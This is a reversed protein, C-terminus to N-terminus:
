LRDAAHLSLVENAGDEILSARADRLLKEIPYEQSLGNGGFIQLADNAVEFATQTSTVKSAIAFHVAPFAGTGAGAMPNNMINYLTVRRNLSRAAEIKRFMEFLKLKVAQHQIIPVGGQVRQKAYDLAMEFAARACGVFTAGMYGNATCLTLEIGMPYMEAPIIMHTAPVRVADFFVEGQPLPRQGLKELPKGRSVGPSRLDVLFVGRGTPGDGNDVATYLAAADAIPGNSVWAAKQGDIVYHDGDRRAVCNPKQRWPRGVEGSMDLVDSGHDPETIAWCGILNVPFAAALDPNQSGQALMAPFEAAGLSIALGADGWGLEETTVSVLRARQLPTLSSDSTSLMRIGLQDWKEHVERLLSHRVVTEAPLRDLAQGAPRMVDQAFRHVLDRITREDESLEFDIDHIAM